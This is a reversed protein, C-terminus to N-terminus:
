LPVPELDPTGDLNENSAEGNVELLAQLAPDSSKFIDTTQIESDAEESSDITEADTIVCAGAELAIRESISPEERELPPSELVSDVNVLEWVMGFKAAWTKPPPRPPDHKKAHGLQAIIARLSLGLDDIHELDMEIESQEMHYRIGDRMCVQLVNQGDSLRLIGEVCPLAKVAVQWQVTRKFKKQAYWKKKMILSHPLKNLEKALLKVDIAVARRYTKM